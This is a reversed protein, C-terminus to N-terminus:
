RWCIFSPYCRKKSLEHGALQFTCTEESDTGTHGAVNGETTSNSAIKLPRNARSIIPAWSQDFPIGDPDILMM